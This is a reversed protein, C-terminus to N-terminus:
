RGGRNGRRGRKPKSLIEVEWRGEPCCAGRPRFSACGCRDLLHALLQQKQSEKEVRGQRLDLAAAGLLVDILQLGEHCRSDIRSVTAIALRGRTRNVAAKVDAEFRVAPPTSQQDALVTVIETEGIIGDLADAAFKEYAKYAPYATRKFQATLDGHQRDSILCRFTIEDLDFALDMAARALEVADTSGLLARKDFDAWHLEQRHNFKDRLGRLRRDLEGQDAVKLCGIGFYQDTQHEIVGTEDLLVVSTPHDVPLIIADPDSLTAM